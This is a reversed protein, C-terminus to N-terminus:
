RHDEGHDGVAVPPADAATARGELRNAARRRRRLRPHQDHMGAAVAAAQRPGAHEALREDRYRERDGGVLRRRREELVEEGHEGAQGRPQGAAAQAHDAAVHQRQEGGLRHRRAGVVRQDDGGGGGEIDGAAVADDDAAVIAGHAIQHLLRGHRVDGRQTGGDVSAAGQDVGAHDHEGARRPRRQARERARHVIRDRRQDGIAAFAAQVLLHDARQHRRAVGPERPTREARPKGSRQRHVAQAVVAVVGEGEDVEAGAGLDEGM